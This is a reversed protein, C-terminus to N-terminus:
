PSWDVLCRAAFGGRLAPQGFPGAGPRIPTQPCSDEYGRTSESGTGVGGVSDRKLSAFRQEFDPKRRGEDADRLKVTLTAAEDHHETSSSRSSSGTRRGASECSSSSLRERLREDNVIASAYSPPTTGHCPYCWARDRAQHLGTTDQGWDYM